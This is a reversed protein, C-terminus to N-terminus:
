MDKAPGDFWRLFRRTVLILCFVSVDFLFTERIEDDDEVDDNSGAVEVPFWRAALFRNSLVDDDDGGGACFRFTELIRAKLVEESSFGSDDGALRSRRAVLFCSARVDDERPVRFDVVPLCFVPRSVGFKEYM